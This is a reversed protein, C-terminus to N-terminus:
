MLRQYIDLVRQSQSDWTIRELDRIGNVQLTEALTGHSLVALIKNAMEDVDWFDVKLCNQIVESAGSQKSMLVPTGNRIAELATIGFPEAVSPMVFLDAQRYAQDVQDHNLFGTFIVNKTIGLDISLDIMDDLMGGKGVFVFKVDSMKKLVKAAARLLYDAGKSPAMRALFLVLKYPKDPDDENVEFSFNNPVDVANHVVEIKNPDIGYHAVIKEKTKESVAIIEDAAVMGEKEYDYIMPNPNGATREYETAHIHVVLPKGSVKKANIAAKFTMWDHAHIVDHDITKALKYARVAYRAVEEFLNLGYIEEDVVTMNNKKWLSSFKQFDKETLYPTLFAPLEYYKLLSEDIEEDEANVLRLYDVDMKRPIKPLVFTIRANHKALHQSLSRCVVGLGGSVIPAYEWGFMLVKIEGM